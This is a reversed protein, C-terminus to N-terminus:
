EKSCFQTLPHGPRTRVFGDRNFIWYFYRLYQAQVDPGYSDLKAAMNSRMVYDTFLSSAVALRESPKGHLSLKPAQTRMSNYVVVFDQFPQCNLPTRPPPRSGSNSPPVKKNDEDCAALSWSLLATLMFYLFSKM